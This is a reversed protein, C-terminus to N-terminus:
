VNFLSQNQIPKIIPRHPDAEGEGEQPPLWLPALVTPPTPRGQLAQRTRPRCASTHGVLRAAEGLGGFGLWFVPKM